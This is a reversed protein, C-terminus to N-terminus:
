VGLQAPRDAGAAVEGAVLGGDLEEVQDQVQGLALPSHRWPFPAHGSGLERDVPLVLLDGARSALGRHSPTDAAILDTGWADACHEAAGVAAGAGGPVQAGRGLLRTTGDVEVRTGFVLRQVCRSCAHVVRGPLLAVM